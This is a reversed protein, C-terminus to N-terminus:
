RVGSAQRPLNGLSQNWLRVPCSAPRYASGSPADALACDLNHDLLRGPRHAPDSFAERQSGFFGSSGDFAQPIPADDPGLRPRRVKGEDRDDNGAEVIA